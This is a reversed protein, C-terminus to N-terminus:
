VRGQCFILILLNKKLDGKQPGKWFQLSSGFTHRGYRRTICIWWQWWRWRTTCAFLQHVRHGFTRQCHGSAFTGDLGIIILFYVQRINWFNWITILIYIKFTNEMCATCLHHWAIKPFGMGRGIIVYNIYLM